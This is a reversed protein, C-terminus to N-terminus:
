RLGAVDVELHVRVLTDPEPPEIRRDPVETAANGPSLNQSVCELVRQPGRILEIEGLGESGQEL